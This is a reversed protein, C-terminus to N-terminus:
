MLRGAKELLRWFSLRRGSLYTSFFLITQGDDMWGCDAPQSRYRRGSLYTLFFMIRRDTTLRGAAAPESRREVALCITDFSVSNTQGDDVTRLGSARFSARRGSLYTLVLLIRGLRRNAM